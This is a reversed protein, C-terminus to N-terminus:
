AKSSFLFAISPKTQRTATLSQLEFFWRLPFMLHLRGRFSNVEFCWHTSRVLSATCICYVACLASSYLTLDWNCDMTGNLIGRLINNLLIQYSVTIFCDTSAWTLLVLFEGFIHIMTNSHRQTACWHIRKWYHCDIWYSLLVICSASDIYLGSTAQKKDLGDSFIM